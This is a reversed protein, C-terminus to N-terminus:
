CGGTRGMASRMTDGDHARGSVALPTLATSSRLDGLTAAPKAQPAPKFESWPDSRGRTVDPADGEFDPTAVHVHTGNHIQVVANPGFQAQAARQLDGLSRFEGGPALDVGDGKPHAGNRAPTYGAAKLRYYDADTRYGNTVVAGRRQLDALSQLAPPAQRFEAWPDAM